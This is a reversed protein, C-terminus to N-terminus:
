KTPYRVHTPNSCTVSVGDVDVYFHRACMWELQAANSQEVYFAADEIVNSILCVWVMVVFLILLHAWDRFTRSTM